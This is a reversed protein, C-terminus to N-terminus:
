KDTRPDNDIGCRGHSRAGPVAAPPVTLHVAPSGAVYEHTNFRHLNALRAALEEFELHTFEPWSKKHSEREGSPITLREPYHEVFDYSTGFAVSDLLAPHRTASPPPPSAHRM